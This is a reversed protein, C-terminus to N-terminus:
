QSPITEVSFFVSLCPLIWAKGHINGCKETAFNIVQVLTTNSTSGSACSQHCTKHQVLIEPACPYILTKHQDLLEPACSYKYKHQTFLEPTCSKQSMKTSCSARSCKFLYNPLTPCLGQIRGHQHQAYARSCRTRLWLIGLHITSTCVLM